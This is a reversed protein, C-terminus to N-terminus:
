LLNMVCTTTHWHHTREQKQPSKCFIKNKHTHWFSLFVPLHIRKSQFRPVHVAMWDEAGWPLYPLCTSAGVPPGNPVTIYRLSSPLIHVSQAPQQNFQLGGPILDKLRVAQLSHDGSPLLAVVPSVLSSPISRCFCLGISTILILYYQGCTM